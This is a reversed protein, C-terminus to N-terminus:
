LESQWFGLDTECFWFWHTLLVMREGSARSSVRGAGPPQGCEKVQTEVVEAELKMVGNGGEGRRYCTDRWGQRILICMSANLAWRSSGPYDGRLTRLKIM